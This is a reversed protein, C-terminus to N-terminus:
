DRRRDALRFVNAGQDSLEPLVGSVDPFPEYKLDALTRAGRDYQAMMAPTLHGTRDRIWGWGHGARRAWTVFTARADHFRLREVNALM